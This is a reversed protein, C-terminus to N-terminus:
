PDNSDDYIAFETSKSNCRLKGCFADSSNAMDQHDLSIAYHTNHAVVRKSASFAFAKYNENLVMYMHFRPLLATNTDKDVIAECFHPNETWKAPNILLARVDTDPQSIGFKESMVKTSRPTTMSLAQSISTTTSALERPASQQQVSAEGEMKAAMQARMRKLDETTLSENSKGIIEEPVTLGSAEMTRQMKLKLYLNQYYDDLPHQRSSQGTTSNYFYLNGNPDMMETWGDPEGATLAEEAIWLLDTDDKPDMGLYLAYELVDEPLAKFESQYRTSPRMKPGLM